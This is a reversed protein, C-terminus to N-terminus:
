KQEYIAGAIRDETGAKLRDLNHSYIMTTAINAHRAMAQAEQISAGATLALTVATHRTSHASITPGGIGQRHFADSIIRRLQRTTIRGGHNRNGAGAILPDTPSLAGRNFIYRRLAEATVEPLVVFEDKSTRGKGQVYLVERDGRRRLDAVDARIVEITRLGTTFLLSLLAAERDDKPAALLRQVHALPLPDRNHGRRTKPAKIQRSIDPYIGESETWSFFRRVASLYVAVTYPSLGRDILDRKYQLITGATPQDIGQSRIWDIFASTKRAYSETTTPAVDLSALYQSLEPIRPATQLATLTNRNEM